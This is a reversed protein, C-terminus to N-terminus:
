HPFFLKKCNIASKALVGTLQTQEAVLLSPFWSVWSEFFGFGGLQLQLNRLHLSHLDSLETTLRYPDRKLVEGESGSSEWHSSDKCFTEGHQEATIGASRLTVDACVTGPSQSPPLKRLLGPQFVTLASVLLCFFYPCKRRKKRQFM